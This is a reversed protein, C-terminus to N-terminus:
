EAARCATCTAGFVLETERFLQNARQFSLPDASVRVLGQQKDSLEQRMDSLVQQQRPCIDSCVSYDSMLTVFKIGFYRNYRQRAQRKSLLGQQNAWLLHDSFLGKNQKKPDGEAITLLREFYDDFRSACGTELDFQAASISANLDPDNPLECSPAKPPNSNCAALAALALVALTTEIRNM